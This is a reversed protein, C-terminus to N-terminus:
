SSNATRHWSSDHVAIIRRRETLSDAALCLLLTGTSRICTTTVHTQFIHRTFILPPPIRQKALDQLRWIHHAKHVHPGKTLTSLPDGTKTYTLGSPYNYLYSDKHAYTNPVHKRRARGLHEDLTPRQHLLRARLSILRRSLPLSTQFPPEMPLLDSVISGQLTLSKNFLPTFLKQLNRGYGDTILDM